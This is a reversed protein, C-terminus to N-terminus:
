GVRKRCPLENQTRLTKKRIFTKILTYERENASSYTKPSIQPPIESNSDL